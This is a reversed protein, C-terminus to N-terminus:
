FDASRSPRANQREKEAAVIIEGGQKERLHSSQELVVLGLIEVPAPRGERERQCAEGPAPVPPSHPLLRGMDSVSSSSILM